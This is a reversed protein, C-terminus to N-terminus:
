YLLHKKVKESFAEVGPAHKAILEDASMGLRYEDTGLLLDIFYHNSSGRFELKDPYLERVAELIYLGAKFLEANKPDTVHMQVGKCIEGVHKHFTPKFTTPRYVIGPVNYSNLKKVLEYQDIWPAGIVEFPTTTGRGESLNTGEFICTGVYCLSSNYTPCTPSPAPWIVDTDALHMDRTWGVMPVVTLELSDLGLYEKFYLALEGITLGTRSPLGYNGVFSAFRADHMTGERMLGGVPNLRDLVYMPKGAKACAMMAYALSYMYTYFRVGVDQMDFVFVDFAETMEATMMKSEESHGFLSYVTVGTAPDVYTGVDDGAQLDGRVGHEVGFLASLNYTENIIDITSRGLHDVGNPHTMLGIRKGRLQEDVTALNELGSLVHAKQM